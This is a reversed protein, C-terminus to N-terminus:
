PKDKIRDPALAPDVGLERARALLWSDEPPNHILDKYEAYLHSSFLHVSLCDSSLHQTLDKENKFVFHNLLGPLPYLTQAPMAHNVEGTIKLCKTMAIPGLSGLTLRSVHHIHHM